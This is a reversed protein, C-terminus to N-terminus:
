EADLSFDPRQRTLFPNYYPDRAILDPWLSRFRAIEDPRQTRPGIGISEHHFLQAHPTFVVRYGAKRVRLCFDVDNFDVALDENLGGVEDYVERRTLLCAATVSSYNRIVMTSGFHGPSSGPHQHFCHAALGGVGLVMGVHQLRGDPYFLKCGVAGIPKQQSFELLASLWEPTIIEVDDNLFLLHSGEAHRVGTNVKHSFNFPGVQDYPVVRHRTEQLLARAPASMEGDDAVIVFEFNQYTTKDLISQICNTLVDMGRDALMRTRRCTLLIMSILPEERLPHRMRFLGPGAGALVEAGSGTARAYDELARRGADQAWPKVAATRATSTDTKRWHYLIGPVHEIRDTRQMARLVLDYDQAGDYDSRFGGIAQVISRRLVLLHCVYMYSLFLEPSWDPKFCPDCRTGSADLKDEDSYIVDAHPVENLRRAIEFLAQPAMEDDHDLLVVFDGSALGLAANSAASIGGSEPLRVLRIRSDNSLEHLVQLTEPRTSGDDALCLEWHPYPQRRVSEVAARLWRPDTNHVPMVISFRPQSALASSEHRLRDLESEGPAHKEIWRRYTSETEDSRVLDRAREILGSLGGQRLRALLSRGLHMTEARSRRWELRPEGWVAWAYSNDESPLRTELTVLFPGGAPVPMGFRRWRRRTWVGLTRRLQVGRTDSWAGDVSAVSVRFDLGDRNQSWVGPHIGCATVLSAGAPVRDLRYVIRSDPHSLLAPWIRGARVPGLWRISDSESGHTTQQSVPLQDRLLRRRYLLHEILTRAPPVWRFPPLRRGHEVIRDLTRRVTRAAFRLASRPGLRRLRGQAGLLSSLEAHADDRADEAELLALRTRTVAEDLLADVREPTGPLAERLWTMTPPGGEALAVPRTPEPPLASEGRV